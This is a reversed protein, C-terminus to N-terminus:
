YEEALMITMVRRTVAADAPDSSHGSLSLDYYDIKFFVTHGDLQIGGFDHEEHPDNDVSFDDFAAIARVLHKLAEPGLAEVGRTMVVTGGQGRQRLDDNLARIRMTHDSM